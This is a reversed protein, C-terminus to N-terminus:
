STVGADVLNVSGTVYSAENSLLWVVLNAVEDPEGYRQLPVRSALAQRAAQPNGPSRATNLAEMMRTDIYGPAVANVRVGSGASELAATRTLGIVAHKSAIYPALGPGGRVGAISATNVIAGGTGQRQLVRLVERLGLFVGRVNVNILRDFDAIDTDVINAVRGEIGANNFFLDLRGFHEVTRRVYDQVDREQGVDATLSLARGAETGLSARVDELRDAAIDVLAVSAGDGLLRRAVAGGIGGAAGTVIAVQGDFSIQSM